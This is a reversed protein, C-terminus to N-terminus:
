LYKVAMTVLDQLDTRYLKPNLKLICNVVQINFNPM